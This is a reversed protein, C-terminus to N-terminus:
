CYLNKWCCCCCVLVAVLVTVHYM